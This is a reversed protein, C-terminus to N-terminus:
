SKLNPYGNRTRIIAKEGLFDFLYKALGNSASKSNEGMRILAPWHKPRLLAFVVFSALRFRGDPSLFRNFDPLKDAFADSVGKVCYFPIDRMAALRAVASAEMDVLAAGYTKAFRQKETENAVRPSTVLWCLDLSHSTLFREGTRTDTVGSIRDVEGGEFEDSLAGAWGISVASSIPGDKEVAAFARTAALVGAGACAAVWEGEEVQHRWLNVGNRIEHHWGKVLPKLEGPMAAIIAVRRM